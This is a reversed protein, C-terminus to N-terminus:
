DCTFTRTMNVKRCLITGTQDMPMDVNPFRILDQTIDVYGLFMRRCCMREIELSKFASLTTGGARVLKEYEKHKDALVSNCTYCRIPFM